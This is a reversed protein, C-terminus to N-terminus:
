LQNGETENNIISKRSIDNKLLKLRILTKLINNFNFQIIFQKIKYYSELFINLLKKM